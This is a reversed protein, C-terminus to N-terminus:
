GEMTTTAIVRARVRGVDRWRLAAARRAYEHAQAESHAHVTVVIRLGRGRWRVEIKWQPADTSRAAAWERDVTVLEAFARAVDWGNRRLACQATSWNTQPLFRRLAAIAGQLVMSPCDDDVSTDSV